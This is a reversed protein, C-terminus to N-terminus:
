SQISTIFKPWFIVDYYRERQVGSEDETLGQKYGVALSSASSILTLAPTM